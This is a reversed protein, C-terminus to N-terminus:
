RGRCCASRSRRPALRARQVHHEWLQMRGSTSAPSSAWPSSWRARLARMGSRCRRASRSSASRAICRCGNRWAPSSCTRTATPGPTSTSQWVLGFFVTSNRRSPEVALLRVELPRVDPRQLIAPDSLRDAVSFPPQDHVSVMGVVQDDQLAIFYANKDHFKDVLLGNGPDQHQPIESVFTRYNLRHIQEFEEGTEARKFVYDGVQLM